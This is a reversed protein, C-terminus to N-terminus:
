CSMKFWSTISLIRSLSVSLYIGAQTHNSGRNQQAMRQGSSKVGASYQESRSEALWGVTMQVKDGEGRSGVAERSLMM